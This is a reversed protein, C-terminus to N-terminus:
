VNSVNIFGHLAILDMTIGNAEVFDVYKTPSDDVTM